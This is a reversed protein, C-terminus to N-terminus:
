NVHKGRLAENDAVSSNSESVKVLAIHRGVNPLSYCNMQKGQTEGNDYKYYLHYFLLSFYYFIFSFCFNISFIYFVKKHYLM